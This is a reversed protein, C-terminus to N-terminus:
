RGIKSEERQGTDMQSKRQNWIKDQKFITRGPFEHKKYKPTKAL